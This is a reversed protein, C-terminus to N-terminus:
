EEGICYLHKDSRIFLRGDSIAPTAGFTERDETVRNVALQECQEGIKFVFMDGSGKVYYLKGDAIVPSSYDGGGGFGGRGGGGRRGGGQAASSGGELRAQSLREGTKADISNVVGNAVYFM